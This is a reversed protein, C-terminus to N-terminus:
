GLPTFSARNMSKTQRASRYTCSFSELRSRIVDWLLHVSKWPHCLNSLVQFAHHYASNKELMLRSTSYSHACLNACLFTSFTCNFCHIWHMCHSNKRPFKTSTSELLTPGGDVSFGASLFAAVTSESSTTLAFSFLALASRSRSAIILSLLLM